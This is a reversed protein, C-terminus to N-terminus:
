PGDMTQLEQMLVQAHIVQHVKNSARHHMHSAEKANSQKGTRWSDNNTDETLIRPDMHQPTQLHHRDNSDKTHDQSM